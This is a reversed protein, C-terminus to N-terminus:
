QDNTSKRTFPFYLLDGRVLTECISRDGYVNSGGMAFGGGHVFVMVAFGAFQDKFWKEWNLFISTSWEINSKLLDSYQWCQNIIRQSRDIFKPSKHQGSRIGGEPPTWCPAFINLRLCDESRPGMQLITKNNNNNKQQQKQKSPKWLKMRFEQGCM